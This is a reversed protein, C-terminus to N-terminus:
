PEKAWSFGYLENGGESLEMVRSFLVIDPTDGEYSHVKDFAIFIQKEKEKEYLKMISEVPEDGLNKFLLSDHIAFPISTLSLLSLDFLLLSKYATGTGGDIENVYTYKNGSSSLTLVHTPREEGYVMKNLKSLKKNIQDQIDSLLLSEKEELKEKAAKCDNKLQETKEYSENSAELRSIQQKVSSYEEFIKADVNLPIGLNRVEDEYAKIEMTLKDIMLDLRENEEQMESALISDITRHFSIVDSLNKLEVGPFFFQLQKIDESVPLHGEEINRQITEKSSLLDKRKRSLVSIQSKLKETTEVKELEYESLDVDGKKAIKPLSEKLKAINEANDRFQRKTIKNPVFDYKQADSYANKKKEAEKEEQKLDSVENYREFAKELNDIAEKDPEHQYTTLPRAPIINDKGHFRSCISVLKRFSAEQVTIKYKEKLFSVFEEIKIEKERKYDASCIWVKKKNDEQRSFYYDIGGFSFTFNIPYVEGVHQSIKENIFTEGGFCFDIIALMTSKGISNDASYGGLITNLGKHFVIPERIKGNSKFGNCQIEKLM